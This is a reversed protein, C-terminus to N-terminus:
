EGAKAAATKTAAASKKTVTKKTAAKDATKKEIKRITHGANTYANDNAVTAKASVRRRKAGSNPLFYDLVKDGDAHFMVATGRAKRKMKQPKSILRHRSHAQKFKVKGTATVTFRKKAGSKTKMKPM